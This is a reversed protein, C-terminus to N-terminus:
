TVGRPSVRSMWQVTIYERFYRNFFFIFLLVVFYYHDLREKRKTSEVVTCVCVGVPLGPM